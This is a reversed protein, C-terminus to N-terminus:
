FEGLKSDIPPVQKLNLERQYRKIQSRNSKAGVSTTAGSLIMKVWYQFVARTRDREFYVTGIRKKNHTNIVLENAVFKLLANKVSNRSTDNKNLFDVKLDHYFFKMSGLSLYERGVARMRLTDVFGSKFDVSVLPVLVPNLISTHFPSVSTIMTFGALTDEYSEMVRLTLSASDLLRAQARIYLTDGSRIDHSKINRVMGELKTFYITGEKETVRSKEHYSLRGGSFQLTDLQLKLLLQQLANTPLPKIKDSFFPHTKDRSIELQPAEVEVRGIHLLSDDFFKKVNPGHILISKLRTDIYDTQFYHEDLYTQRDQVPRIHVQQLAASQQAPDYDLQGVRFLMSGTEINAQLSDISATSYNDRIFAATNSFSTTNLALDCFSGYPVTARLKDTNLNITNVTLSKVDAKIHTASDQQESTVQQMVVQIGGNESSVETLQYVVSDTPNAEAIRRTDLRKRFVTDISSRLARPNRYAPKEPAAVPAEAKKRNLFYFPGINIGAEAITLRNQKYVINQLHIDSTMRLQTSRLSDRNEVDLHIGTIDLRSAEHNKNVLHNLNARFAIADIGAQLKEKAVNSYRLGTLNGGESNIMFSALSIGQRGATVDTQGGLVDAGTITVSDNLILRQLKLWQLQTKLNLNEKNYIITSHRGDLKQLDIRPLAAPPTQEAKKEPQQMAVDLSSWGMNKLLISNAPKNWDAQDLYLGQVSLRLQDTSQVFAKRIQTKGRSWRFANLSGSFNKGEASAQQISLLTVAEAMKSVTTAKMIDDVFVSAYLGSLTVTTQQEPWQVVATADTLTFVEMQLLKHLAELEVGKDEDQKPKITLRLVPSKVIAERAVLRREELLINWDLAKLEFAPTELMPEKSGEEELRFNLLSLGQKQLRITDFSVRRHQESLFTSYRAVRVDFDEASFVRTSDPQHVLRDIHMYADGLHFTNGSDANRLILDSALQNVLVNNIRFAVLASKEKENEAQDPDRSKVNWAVDVRTNALIVSDIIVVGKTYLSEFDARAIRAKESHIRISNSTGPPSHQIDLNNVQFANERTTFFVTDFSLNIDKSFEIAQKPFSFEILPKRQLLTDASLYLEHARFNMGTVSTAPEDKGHLLHLSIDALIIDRINFRGADNKLKEFIEALTITIGQVTDNVAQAEKFITIEGGRCEFMEVELTGGSFFDKLSAVDIFLSNFKTKKYDTGSPDTFLVEINKLSISNKHPLLWMSGISIKVKGNTGSEILSILINRAQFHILTTAGALVVFVGILIKYRLKLCGCCNM